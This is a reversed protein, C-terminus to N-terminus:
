KLVEIKNEPATKRYYKLAEKSLVRKVSFKKKGLANCSALKADGATVIACHNVFMVCILPLCCTHYATLVSGDQSEM